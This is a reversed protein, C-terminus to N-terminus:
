FLGPWKAIQRKWSYRASHARYVGILRTCCGIIRVACAVGALMAPLVGANTPRTGRAPSGGRLWNMLRFRSANRGQQNHCVEPHRFGDSVHRLDAEGKIRLIM